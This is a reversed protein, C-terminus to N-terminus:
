RASVTKFREKARKQRLKRAEKKNPIHPRTNLIEYIRNIMILINQRCEKECQCRHENLCEMSYYDDYRRFEYARMLRILSVTAMKELESKAILKYCPKIM